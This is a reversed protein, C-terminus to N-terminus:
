PVPLCRHAGHTVQSVLLLHLRRRQFKDGSDPVGHLIPDALPLEGAAFDGSVPRRLTSGRPAACHYQIDGGSAAEGAPPQDSVQGEFEPTYYYESINGSKFGVSWKELVGASWCKIDRRVVFQWPYELLWCDQNV